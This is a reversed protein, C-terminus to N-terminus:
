FVGAWAKESKLMDNEKSAWNKMKKLEARYDFPDGGFFGFFGRGLGSWFGTDWEAGAEKMIGFKEFQKIMVDAIRIEKQPFRILWVSYLYRSAYRYAKKMNIPPYSLNIYKKMIDKKLGTWKLELIVVQKKIKALKDEDITDAQEISRLNKGLNRAKAKVGNLLAIIEQYRFSIGNIYLENLGKLLEKGEIQIMGREDGWKPLLGPLLGKALDGVFDFDAPIIKDIKSNVADFEGLLASGLASVISGTGPAFSDVAVGAVSLLGNIIKKGLVNTAKFYDNHKKVAQDYEEKADKFASSAQSGRQAADKFKLAVSDKADDAQDKMDSLIGEFSADLKRIGYKALVEDMEQQSVDSIDPITIRDEDKEYKSSHDVVGGTSLIIKDIQGLIGQVETIKLPDGGTLTNMLWTEAKKSYEQLKGKIKDDITTGQFLDTDSDIFNKFDKLDQYIDALDGDKVNEVFGTIAETFKSLQRLWQQANKIKEQLGLEEVKDSAAEIFKDVSKKLASIQVLIKDDIKTGPILDTSGGFLENYKAEIRNYWDPLNDGDKDEIIMGVLAELKGLRNEGRELYSKLTEVNSKLEEDQTDATAIFSRAAAFIKTAEAVVGDKLDEIKSPLSLTINVVDQAIKAYRDVQASINRAVNIFKQAKAVLAEIEDIEKSFIGPAFSEAFDIFNQADVLFQEGKDLYARFNSTIKDFEYANWLSILQEYRSQSEAKAGSKDNKIETKTEARRSARREERKDKRAEKRKERRAKRDEKSTKPKEVVATTEPATVPVTLDMLSLAVYLSQVNRAEPTYQARQSSGKELKEFNKLFLRLQKQLELLGKIAKPSLNSAPM